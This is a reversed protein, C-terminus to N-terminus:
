PIANPIIVGTRQGLNILFYGAPITIIDDFTGVSAIDEAITVLYIEFRDFLSYGYAELVTWVNM